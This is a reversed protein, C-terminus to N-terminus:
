IKGWTEKSAFPTGLPGIDTTLAYQVLKGKCLELTQLEQAQTKLKCKSTQYSEYIESNWFIVCLLACWYLVCVCM